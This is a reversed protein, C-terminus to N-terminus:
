AAEDLFARAISREHDIVCLDPGLLTPNGCM